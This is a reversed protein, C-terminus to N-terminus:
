QSPAPLGMVTLRQCQVPRNLHPHLPPSMAMLEAPLILLALMLTEAHRAPSCCSLVNLRWSGYSILQSRGM